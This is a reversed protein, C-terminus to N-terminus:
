WFGRVASQGRTQQPSVPQNYSERTTTEQLRQQQVAQQMMATQRDIAERTATQQVTAVAVAQQTVYDQNSAIANSPQQMVFFKIEHTFPRSNSFTLMQQSHPPVVTVVQKGWRQTTEFQLPTASPNVLTLHVKNRWGLGDLSVQNTGPEITISKSINKGFDIGLFSNDYNVSQVQGTLPDTATPASMSAPQYLNNTNTTTTTTTQQSQTTGSKEVMQALSPSVLGSSFIAVVASAALCCRKM